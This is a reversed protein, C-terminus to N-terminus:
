KIELLSVSNQWLVIAKEYGAAIILVFVLLLILGAGFMVVKNIVANLKQLSKVSANIESLNTAHLQNTHNIQNIAETTVGSNKAIEQVATLFQKNQEIIFAFSETQTKTKPIAM